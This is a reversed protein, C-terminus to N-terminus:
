GSAPKRTHYPMRRVTGQGYDTGLRLTFEGPEDPLVEETIIPSIFNTQNQNDSEAAQPRAVVSLTTAMTLFRNMLCTFLPWRKKM